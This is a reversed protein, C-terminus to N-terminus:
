KTSIPIEEFLKTVKEGQIKERELEELWALWFREQKELFGNLNLCLRGGRPLKTKRGCHSLLRPLSLPHQTLGPPGSQRCFTGWLEWPKQCYKPSSLMEPGAQYGHVQNKLSKEAARLVLFRHLPFIM